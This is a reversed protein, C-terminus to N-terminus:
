SAPRVTSCCSAATSPRAGLHGTTPFFMVVKVAIVDGVVWGPKLLLSADPRGDGVPVSHVTREPACAGPDILTTEIAEILTHWPLAAAVHM